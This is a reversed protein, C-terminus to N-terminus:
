HSLKDYSGLSVRKIFAEKETLEFPSNFWLHQWSMNMDKEFDGTFTMQTELWRRVSEHTVRALRDSAKQRDRYVHLVTGQFQAVLALGSVIAARRRVTFPEVEQHFHGHINVRGFMPHVMLKDEKNLYKLTLALEPALFSQDYWGVREGHKTQEPLTKEIPTFAGKPGKIAYIHRPVRGNVQHIDKTIALAEEKQIMDSM